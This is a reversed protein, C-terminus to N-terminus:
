TNLYARILEELVHLNNKFWSHCVPDLMAQEASVCVYLCIYICVRVREGWGVPFLFDTFLDSM